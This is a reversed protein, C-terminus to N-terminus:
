HEGPDHVERRLRDLRRDLLQDILGDEIGVTRAAEDVEAVLEQAVRDVPADRDGVPPPIVRTGALEPCLELTLGLDMRGEVVLHRPESLARELCSKGSSTVRRSQGRMAFRELEVATGDPM